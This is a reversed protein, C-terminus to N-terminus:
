TTRSAVGLTLTCLVSASTTYPWLSKATVAGLPGLTFIVGNDGFADQALATVYPALLM